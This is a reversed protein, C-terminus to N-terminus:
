ILAIKAAKVALKTGLDIIKAVSNLTQAILAINAITQQLDGMVKRLNATASKFDPTTANFEAAFLHLHVKRLEVAAARAQKRETKSLSSNFSLEDLKVIVRVLDDLIDQPTTVSNAM